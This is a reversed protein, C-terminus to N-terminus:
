SGSTQNSKMYWIDDITHGEDVWDLIQTPGFEAENVKGRQEASGYPPLMMPGCKEVFVRTKQLRTQTQELLTTGRLLSEEDALQGFDQELSRIFKILRYNVLADRGKNAAAALIALIQRFHTPVFEGWYTQNQEVGVDEFEGWLEGLNKKALDDGVLDRFTPKLGRHMCARWKEFHEKSYPFNRSGWISPQQDPQADLLWEVSIGTEVAICLALDVSLSHRGLEISQITRPSRKVLGGFEKQSLGLLTRLVALPHRLPSRRM